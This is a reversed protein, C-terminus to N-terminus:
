FRYGVVSVLLSKVEFFSLLCELMLFCCLVGWRDRAIFVKGKGVLNGGHTLVYRDLARLLYQRVLGRALTQDATPSGDDRPLFATECNASVEVIVQNLAAVFGMCFHCRRCFPVTHLYLGSWLSLLVLVPFCQLDYTLWLKHHLVSPKQDHLTRLRDELM